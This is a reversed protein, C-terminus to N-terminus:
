KNWLSVGVTILIPSFSFGRKTYNDVSSKPYTDPNSNIIEEESENDDFSFEFFHNRILKVRSPTIIM